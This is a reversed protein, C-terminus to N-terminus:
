LRLQKDRIARITRFCRPYKLPLLIRATEAFDAFDAIFCNLDNVEPRRWGRNDAQSFLPDRHFM